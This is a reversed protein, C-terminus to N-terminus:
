EDDTLPFSELVEQAQQRCYLFQTNDNEFDVDLDRIYELVKRQKEIVNAQHEYCRILKDIYLYDKSGIRGETRIKKIREIHPEPTLKTM